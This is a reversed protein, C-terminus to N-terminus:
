DMELVLHSIPPFRVIGAILIDDTLTFTSIPNFFSLDLELEELESSFFYFFRSNENTTPQFISTGFISLGATFHSKFIGIRSTSLLLNSIRGDRGVDFPSISPFIEIEV